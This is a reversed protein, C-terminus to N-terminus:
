DVEEMHQPVVNTAHKPPEITVSKSKETTNFMASSDTTEASEMCFRGIEKKQIAETVGISYSYWASDTDGVVKKTQKAEVWPVTRHQNMITTQVM